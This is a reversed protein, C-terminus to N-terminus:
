NNIQNDKFEFFQEPTNNKWGYEKHFLTHCNECLTVGNNIDYRLEPYDAWNYLHHANFVGSMNTGCIQCIFSDRCYVNHRWEWNEPTARGILREEDTKDMKWNPHNEGKNNEWYCIPCRRGSYFHSYTMEGIHGKPCQYQLKQHANKYEKSLLLYNYKLFEEYINSYNNKQKNASSLTGCINCRHGDQINGFTAYSINGCSCRYKMKTKNNIYTDELLELNHEKYYNYVFDYSLQRIKRLKDSFCKKCRKGQKFNDWCIKSENGCVCRYRMPIGSNIYETELLECGHEKFYNYVYEYTLKQKGGM